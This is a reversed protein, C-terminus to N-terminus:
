KVPTVPTVTDDAANAAYLTRGNPTVALAVAPVALAIISARRRGRRGRTLTADPLRTDADAMGRRGTDSIVM